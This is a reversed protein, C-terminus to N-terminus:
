DGSDRGAAWSGTQGLEARMLGRNNLSQALWLASQRDSDHRRFKRFTDCASDYAACAQEIEGMQEHIRGIQLYADGVDQYLSEDHMADQIFGRYYALTETLLEKRVQSAGPISALRRSM